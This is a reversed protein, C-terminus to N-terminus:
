KFNIVDSIATNSSAILGEPLEIVFMAKRRPSYLRNPALREVLDVVVRKSNLFLVDINRCVLFTHIGAGTESSFSLITPVIKKALMLGIGRSFFNNCVRHKGALITNKTLNKIM